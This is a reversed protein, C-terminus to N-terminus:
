EDLVSVVRRWAGGAEYRKRPAHIGRAVWM